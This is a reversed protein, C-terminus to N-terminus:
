RLVKLLLPPVNLASVTVLKTTLVIIVRSVSVCFKMGNLLKVPAMVSVNLYSYKHFKLPRFLFSVFSVTRGVFHADRVEFFAFVTYINIFVVILLVIMVVLMLLLAVIMVLLM